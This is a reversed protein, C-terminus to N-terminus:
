LGECAMYGRQKGSRQIGSARNKRKNQELSSEHFMPILCDMLCTTQGGDASGMLPPTHFYLDSNCFRAAKTCTVCFQVASKRFNLPLIDQSTYPIEGYTIELIIKFYSSQISFIAWKLFDTLTYRLFICALTQSNHQDPKFKIKWQKLTHCHM